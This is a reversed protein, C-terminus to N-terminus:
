GNAEAKLQRVFVKSAVGHGLAIAVGRVELEVPGNFPCKRLVKVEIGPTLGM